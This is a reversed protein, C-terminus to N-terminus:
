AGCGRAPDTLVRHRRHRSRHCGERSRAARTPRVEGWGKVNISGAVWAAKTAGIAAVFVASPKVGLLASPRPKCRVYITGRSRHFYRVSISSRWRSCRGAAGRGDGRVEKRGAGGGGDAPFPSVGRLADLDEGSSTEVLACRTLLDALALVEAREPSPRGDAVAVEQGCQQGPLTARRPKQAGSWWPRRPSRGASPPGPARDAGPRSRGCRWRGRGSPGSIQQGRGALAKLARDVVAPEPPEREGEEADQLEAVAEQLAVAERDNRQRQQDLGCEERDAELHEARHLLHM